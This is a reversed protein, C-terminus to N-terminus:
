FEGVSRVSCLQQLWLLDSIPQVRTKSSLCPLLNVVKQGRNPMDMYRWIYGLREHMVQCHSKYRSCILNLNLWIVKKGQFIENMIADNTM